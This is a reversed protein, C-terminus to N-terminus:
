SLRKSYLWKPNSELVMKKLEDVTDKYYYRVGRKDLIWHLRGKKIGNLDKKIYRDGRKQKSLIKKVLEDVTNATFYGVKM